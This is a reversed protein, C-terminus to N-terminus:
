LAFSWKIDQGDLNSRFVITNKWCIRSNKDGNLQGMNWAQFRLSQYGVSNICFCLMNGQTRSFVSYYVDQLSIDSQNGLPGAEFADWM